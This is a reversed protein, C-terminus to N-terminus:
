GEDNHLLDNWFSIWQESYHKPHDLLREILLGRKHPSSDEVFERWQKPTPLLGWLDLYARRVFIEDSVLASAAINNKHLYDQVFADIPHLANNQPVVPWR